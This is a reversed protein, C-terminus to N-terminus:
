EATTVKEADAYVEPIELGLEKAADTNFVPTSDSVVSVPMEAASKGGLIEVAMKGTQEGLAVYDISAAALCGKRVQEIESGYVPINAAKAQELVTAMNDVVNNDTLNTVAEVQPILAAAAAPLETADNIGQDILEIGNKECEDKLIKLQSLSNPETTTYFVGLKTLEPQVAKIIEIQSVIDFSDSTGTCNNGPKEISEVLKAAVPDSVACFVVPIDASANRVASYAAAASPTAIAIIVDYEGSSAMRAAYNQCDDVASATSGVQVDYDIKAEDLANKIGQCCNDLSSHPMFQIIGVKYQAPVDTTESVARTNPVSSEAAAPQTKSDCGAFVFAAILLVSMLFAILKTSKKMKIVEKRSKRSLLFGAGCFLPVPVNFNRATGGM